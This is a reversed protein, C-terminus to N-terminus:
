LIEFNFTLSPFATGLVALRNAQAGRFAAQTFFVSFANQRAYVNYISITWSTQFKKDRKYGKGLTYAIDLRHYDPIRAANRLAYVPVVLGGSTVYNGVPPTTPRGSGYVFNISLTNRRNPQYNFVFSLDHPKDFNSPYWSGSNIGEIQRESRSLTYSLSGYVEGVKKKVSLELGYSRGIGNLLETELQQNNTLVAFDKYDFLQDVDRSYVEASTEWNNDKLNLFFGLSYNHSTTPKIYNTSLQWQSVPTPSDSNFIQNIYQVTRSYGGKVSANQGVRYRVSARPELNNYSAIKDGEGYNTTGTVENVNPADENEYNFVTRPGLFNFLSMRLGASIQLSEGINIETNVFAAMELGKEDDLINIAVESENDYPAVDGPKVTYLIGAIGGDLRFQTSPSYTLEEKLKIYDVQNTLRSGTLGGIDFRNSNYTNYVASLNSLLKDGFTSKLSAQGVYTSYDFGFEENYIFEDKSGYGSMSLTNKKGLKATVGFNADYFFASSGSVEVNDVLDLLWNIYSSRFGGYFAVKDKVIPGELSIKSTIPGVGGRIKFDQFDGDKLDVDMVSALRGGFQAPMNAKYLEVNQLLDTNFASFFGLAHSSNLLIAENMLILNQDVDGGRVNFGSAGEGVTTVGATQLLTKVVDAEGMLAPNKRMSEVDVKAVGIQVSEVSRDAKNASITVEDLDIAGKELSLRMDGDSQVRVPTNIDEYGLYTIKLYHVGAPITTSFEGDIGTITGVELDEWSVSAGIVPEKTEADRIVGTVTAKGDVSLKRIDGVKLEKREEIVEANAAQKAKYYDATFAQNALEIPLIVIAKNRYSIFGLTTTGLVQNLAEDLPTDQFNFGKVPRTSIDSSKFYFTYDTRSDLQELITKISVNSFSATITPYDQTQAKLASCAFLM